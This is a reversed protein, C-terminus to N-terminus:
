RGWCPNRTTQLRFGSLVPNMHTIRAIAFANVMVARCKSLIFSLRFYGRLRAHKRPQAAARKVILRIKVMIIARMRLAANM